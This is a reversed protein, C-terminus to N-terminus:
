YFFSFFRNYESIIYKRMNEMYEKNRSKIEEINSNNEWIHSLYKVWDDSICSSFIPATDPSYIGIKSHPHALTVKDYAVSEFTKIKLGTGQYTPNIVVDGMSYFDSANEVYGYLTINSKSKYEELINCIGGGIVLNIDPIAKILELFIEDVFWKLGNYNYENPGSLFLINKNGIIDSSKYEYSSFINYVKSLPSIKSFYIAEETNLAFIHPCRQYAKAEQDATTLMWADYTGTLLDKYAFYDHSNVAMLPFHVDKFVRTMYYYNTICADFSRENQLKKLFRSLGSPYVSDCKYYLRRFLRRLKPDLKVKIKYLLSTEYCIFNDGWYQKMLDIEAASVYISNVFLFHVDHGMSAWLEAQSLIFRRNGATTPHTPQDSILLIKM